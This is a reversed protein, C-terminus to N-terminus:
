VNARGIEFDQANMNSAPEMGLKTFRARLEGDLAKNVAANLKDVVDRPTGKPAFIGYWTGSLYDAIGLEKATPVDPLPASRKEGTVALIKVLDSSCVDSSWDSIRM